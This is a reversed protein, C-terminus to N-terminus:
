KQKNVIMSLFCLMAAGVACGFIIFFLVKSLVM